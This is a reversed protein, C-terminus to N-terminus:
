TAVAGGSRETAAGSHSRCDWRTHIRAHRRISTADRTGSWWLPPAPPTNAAAACQIIMMACSQSFAVEWPLFYSARSLASALCDGFRSM